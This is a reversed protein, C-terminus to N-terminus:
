KKEAFNRLFLDFTRLANDISNQSFNENPAHIHCGPAVIGVMLSECNLIERFASVVGISGGERLQLPPRSFTKELAWQMSRFLELFSSSARNLDIFAPHNETGGIEIQLTVYDPANQRLFQAVNKAIQAPNQGAAIRATLKAIGGAPIITKSGEGGYGSHLGNIELSPLFGSIGRRLYEPFLPLVHNVGLSEGYRPAMKELHNIAALEEPRPTQIDDYFHPVCVKGNADHLKGCLRSLERAANPICGGFGSHLDEKGTRLNVEFTVISRLGTTLAPLTEDPCGTDVILVSDAAIEQRFKRLFEHFNPSGIEEEGELLVRIHMPFDPFEALIKALAFLPISSPGKDDAIGRGFWYNGRRTLQFPDSKWLSLPEVPQVDYHGYFLLTKEARPSNWQGIVYPASGNVSELRSSIGWKALQQAAFKATTKLTERRSSDASISPLAIYSKLFQILSDDM